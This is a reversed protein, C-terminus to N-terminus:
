ETGTERLDLTEKLGRHVLFSKAEPDFRVSEGQYRFHHVVGSGTARTKEFGVISYDYMFPLIEDISLAIEGKRKAAAYGKEFEDRDFRASGINKLVELASQWRPLAESIEDDLELRFYESYSARAAKIDANTILDGAADGEAERRRRFEDLALNCFQILDRPRLFTRFTIHQFKHQTGRTLQSDFAREWAAGVDDLGLEEKIRWDILHKLSAGDHDLRDHWKLEVVNANLIKNKDGFHLRDFIDSRLFVVPRIPVEADRLDASLRRAAILLGVIRAEYLADDPDFGLDLEDLLVFTEPAADGIKKLKQMLWENVRGLTAGFGAKASPARRFSASGSPGSLDGGVDIADLRLGGEPLARRFDLRKDGYNQTLFDRVEGLAKQAPRPMGVMSEHVMLDFSEVLILFIWSEVFREASTVDNSAYQYHAAWPYQRFSLSAALRREERARQGLAIYLATKGAGKRGIVISRRGEWLLEFPPTRVFFRAIDDDEAATGGFSDIEVLSKM